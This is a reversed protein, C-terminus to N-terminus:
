FKSVSVRGFGPIFMHSQCPDYIGLGGTANLANTILNAM